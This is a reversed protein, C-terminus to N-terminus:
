EIIEEESSEKSEEPTVEIGKMAGWEEKEATGTEVKIKEKRELSKIFPIGKAKWWHDYAFIGGVIIFAIIVLILIFKPNVESKKSINLFKQNDM